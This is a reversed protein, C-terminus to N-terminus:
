AAVAVCAALGPPNFRRRRSPRPETLRLAVLTWTIPLAVASVGNLLPSPVHREWLGLDVVYGLAFAAALAMLDFITPGTGRRRGGPEILCGLLSHCGPCIVTKGRHQETLLVLQGCDPCASKRIIGGRDQWPDGCAPCLARDGEPSAVLPGEYGCALCAIERAASAPEAAASIAVWSAIMEDAAPSAPASPGPRPGPVDPEDRGAGYGPSIIQGTMVQEEM